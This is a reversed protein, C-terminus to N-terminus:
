PYYPLADADSALLLYGLQAVSRIGLFAPRLEGVTGVVPLGHRKQIAQGRNGIVQCPRGKPAPEGRSRTPAPRAAPPPGNGHLWGTADWAGDRRAPLAVEDPLWSEM